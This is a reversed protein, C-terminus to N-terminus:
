DLVVTLKKIETILIETEVGNLQGKFLLANGFDSYFDLYVRFGNENLSLIFKKVDIYKRKNKNFKCVSICSDSIQLPCDLDVVLKGKRCDYDDIGNFVYLGQHFSFTIRTNYLNIENIICDHFVYTPHKVGLVYM